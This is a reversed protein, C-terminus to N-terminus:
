SFQYMNSSYNGNNKYSKSTHETIKHTFSITKKKESKLHYGQFRLFIFFRNIQKLIRM